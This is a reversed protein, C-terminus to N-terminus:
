EIGRKNRKMRRGKEEEIRRQQRRFIWGRGKNKEVGEEEKSHRLFLEPKACHGKTTRHEVKGVDGEPINSYM